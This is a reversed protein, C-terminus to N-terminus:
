LKLRFGTLVRVVFSLFFDLNPFAKWRQRSIRRSVFSTTSEWTWYLNPLTSLKWTLFLVNFTAFCNQYGCTRESINLNIKLSKKQYVHHLIVKYWVAQQHGATCRQEHQDISQFTCICTCASSVFWFTYLCWVDWKSCIWCQLYVKENETHINQTPYCTRTPPLWLLDRAIDTINNSYACNLYVQNM